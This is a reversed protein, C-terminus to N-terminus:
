AVERERVRKEHMVSAGRQQGRTEVFLGSQHLLIRLRRRVDGRELVFLFDFNEVGHIRRLQLFFALIHAFSPEIPDHEIKWVYATQRLIYIPLDSM